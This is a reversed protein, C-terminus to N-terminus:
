KLTLLYKLKNLEGLMEDRINLLDSDIVSDLEDNLSILHDLYTDIVLLYQDELNQLEINYTLKAKSRGYKGMYIEVFQDILTDLAEYAKGFAKHQAYSETQWHFVRLQNQIKLFPAFLKM